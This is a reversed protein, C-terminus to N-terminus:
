DNQKNKFLRGLKKFFSEKETKEEVKTTDNKKKGLVIDEVLHILDEIPDLPNPKERYHAVEFKNAMRKSLMKFSGSFYKAAEGDKEAYKIMNAYVPLAMYAGQGLRTTRFHVAPNEAGVWVGTVLDPTAGIFWGDANMQTTGTKGAIDYKIGYINRLSRATGSDVVMKLMHSMTVATKEDLVKLPNEPEFDELINGNRDEIKKLYFPEVRYGGNVYAAYAPVMELLPIAAAGLAISPGDPLETKIGLDYATKRVEDLGTEFALQVTVTNVSNVLAGLVSYEGGFKGDSNAPTWNEYAEYVISDNSYFDDPDVGDKLAATYVFPKFTSGVQRKATVHDYQFYKHNIGGVWAKVDGNKPNVALIGTHLTLISKKVSDLPTMVIDEEKQWSFLKAKVATSFASDIQAQTKGSGKMNKYRESNHIAASLVSTNTDWPKRYRWHRNFDDQLKRMHDEMALEADQQLDYDITTYVKLGDRYLDYPDGNEKFHTKCWDQLQLRLYERFYPAMGSHHSLLKYDTKLPILQLSDVEKKSLFGYKEMQGLVVNRRKFANGPKRYPNFLSTGKLMGVLTAAEEISLDELQKSFYHDAASKIGFTNDGFPVTNLYLTLIEDKTYIDELRKAAIMEKFKSMSLNIFSDGIRPFLNKILQQSITSGGGASKDGMIITKVLVRALSRRDIGEHEFFRVDETAVLADVVSAPIEEFSANSRNEFFYKGILTNNDSYVESSLHNKIDKLESKTPVNGWKGSILMFFLVVSVMIAGAILFLFIRLVQNKLKKGM